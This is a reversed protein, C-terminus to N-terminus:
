DMKPSNGPAGKTMPEIRMPTAANKAILDIIFISKFGSWSPDVIM